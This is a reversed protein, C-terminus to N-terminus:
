TKSERHEMWTRLRIKGAIYLPFQYHEALLWGVLVLHAILTVVTWILPFLLPPEPLSRYSFWVLTPPFVVLALGVIWIVLTLDFDERHISQWHRGNWRWSLPQSSDEVRLTNEELDATFIHRCFNCAFAETLVLSSIEGHRCIPCPYVDQYSLRHKPSLSKGGTNM